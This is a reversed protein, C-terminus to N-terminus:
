NPYVYSIYSSVYLSRFWVGGAEIVTGNLPICEGGLHFELRYEDPNLFLLNIDELGFHCDDRSNYDIVFWRCSPEPPAQIMM